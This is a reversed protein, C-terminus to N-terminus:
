SMRFSDATLLNLINLLHTVNIRRRGHVLIPAKIVVGDLIKYVDPTIIAKTARESSIHQKSEIELLSRRWKPQDFIRNIVSDSVDVTALKRLLSTSNTSNEQLFKVVHTLSERLHATTPSIFSRM